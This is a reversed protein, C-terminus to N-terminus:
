LGKLESYNKFSYIKIVFNTSLLPYDKTVNISLDSFTLLQKFGEMLNLFNVFDTYTGTAKIYIPMAALTMGENEESKQINHNNKSSQPSARRSNQPIGTTFNVAEFKSSKMDLIIIGTKSAHQSIGDIFAPVDQEAFLYKEMEEQEAKYKDIDANITKIDSQLQALEQNKLNLRDQVDKFTKLKSSTVFIFTILVFSVALIFCTRVNNLTM